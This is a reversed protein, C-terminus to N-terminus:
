NEGKDFLSQYVDQCPAFGVIGSSLDRQRQYIPASGEMSLDRGHDSSLDGRAISQAILQSCYSQAAKVLSIKRFQHDYSRLGLQSLDSAKTMCTTYNNMCEDMVRELTMSNYTVSEIVANIKQREDANLLLSAITNADKWDEMSKTYQQKINDHALHLMEQQEPTLATPVLKRLSAANKYSITHYRVPNWSDLNELDSRMQTRMYNIAANMKQVCEKISSVSCFLGEPPIALTVNQPKGGIQKIMLKVGYEQRESEELKELQGSAEVLNFANVKLYGAIKDKQIENKATVELSVAMKAGYDIQNVFDTGCYFEKDSNGDPVDSGYRRTGSKFSKSKGILNITAFINTTLSTKAAKKALQAGASAKITALNLSVDLSGSMSEVIDQYNADFIFSVDGGTLPLNKEVEEGAVCENLLFSGTKESYGDGLAITKGTASSDLSSDKLLSESPSNKGCSYSTASLLIIIGRTISNNLKDKVLQM